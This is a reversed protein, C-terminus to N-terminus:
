SFPRRSYPIQVPVALWLLGTLLRAERPGSANERQVKNRREEL